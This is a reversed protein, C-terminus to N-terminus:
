PSFLVPCVPPRGSASMSAGSPQSAAPSPLKGAVPPTFIPMTSVPISWVWGSSLPLTTSQPAANPPVTALPAQTSSLMCPVWTAPVIAALAFLAVPTAPTANLADSDIQM